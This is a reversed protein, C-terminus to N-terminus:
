NICLRYKKTIGSTINNVTIECVQKPRLGIYKAQPDDRKITPLNKISCNYKKLLDSTENISLIKHKPVLNHKSVNFLFNELGFLQVFYNKTIYLHNVYEEDVKDKVGIKILVRNINIIILTDKTTLTNEFIENIQTNLSTTSKFRDELRYKIYIKEANATGPNKELLIDLPGVESLTGFKNLEHQNLMIKMEDETYNRLEDVNYGRDELMELIHKRSNYVLQFLRYVQSSSM